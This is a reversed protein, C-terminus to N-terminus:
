NEMQLAWAFCVTITCLIVIREQQQKALLILVFVSTQKYIAHIKNSQTGFYVFFLIKIKKEYTQTKSCDHIQLFFFQIIEM